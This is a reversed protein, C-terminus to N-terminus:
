TDKTIGDLFIQTSSNVIAELDVNKLDYSWILISGELLAGFALVMEKTGKDAFEGLDIGKQFVLEMREIFEYLNKRIVDGVIPNRFSLAIFEYMVPIFIKLSLLDNVVMQGTKNVIESPSEESTLWSELNSYEREFFWQLLKSIIKDKGKFYWYLTGKSLGAEEAIEDMTAEHFGQESFVKIAAEVIQQTREERVDPRPSM